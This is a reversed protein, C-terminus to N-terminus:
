WADTYADADVPGIHLRARGFTLPTVDIMRGDGLLRRYLVGDPLPASM